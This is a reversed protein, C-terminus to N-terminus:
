TNEKRLQGPTKGTQQKVLKALYDAGSLGARKAVAEAPLETTRLLEVALEVRRRRIYGSIGMGFASKCVAYLATRSIGVGACVSGVSLSGEALHASVYQAVSYALNEQPVGVLSHLRVYCACMALISAAARIRDEPTEPIDELLRMLEAKDVRDPLAAVRRRVEERAGESLIQGFMLYGIAVGDETIPAIAETLGMHCRYIHLEERSPCGEVGGRDCARCERDLAPVRRLAACFPCMSDKMSYVIRFDTDMLVTNIGTITKVDLCMAEFVADTKMGIEGGTKHNNM